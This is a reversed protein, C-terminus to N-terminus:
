SRCGAGLIGHVQPSLVVPRKLCRMPINVWCGMAILHVVKTTSVGSIAKRGNHSLEDADCLIMTSHHKPLVYYTFVM